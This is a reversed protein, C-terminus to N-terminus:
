AAAASMGNLLPGLIAVQDPMGAAAAAAARARGSIGTRDPGRDAPVSGAM